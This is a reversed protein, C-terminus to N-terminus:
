AGLEPLPGVGHEALDRGFRQIQGIFIHSDRLRICILNRVAPRRNRRARGHDDSTEHPRGSESDLLRQNRTAHDASRIRRFFKACGAPPINSLVPFEPRQRAVLCRRANEPIILPISTLGIRSKGPRNVNRFNCHVERGVARSHFIEYGQLFDAFDKVGNQRLTLDGAANGLSNSEGQIFFDDPM